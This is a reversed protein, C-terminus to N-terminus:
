PCEKVTYGPTLGGYAESAYQPPQGAPTQLKIWDDSQGPIENVGPEPHRYVIRGVTHCEAPRTEGDKYAADYQKDADSNSVGPYVEITSSGGCMKNFRFGQADPILVTPACRSPSADASVGVGTTSSAPGNEAGASGCAALGLAAATVPVIWRPARNKNMM